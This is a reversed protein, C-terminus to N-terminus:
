QEILETWFIRLRDADRALMLRLGIPTNMFLIRTNKPFNFFDEDLVEVRPKFFEDQMIVSTLGAKDKILPPGGKHKERIITVAQSLTATAARMEEVTGVGKAQEKRLIMNALTPNRHLLEIVESPYLDSPSIDKTENSYAKLGAIFGLMLFNNTSVYFDEWDKSDAATLLQSNYELGPAFYLDVNKANLSKTKFSKYREVFDKFYLDKIVPALDQTESFLITFKTARDRAEKEEASTAQPEETRRISQAASQGSFLLCLIILSSALHNL